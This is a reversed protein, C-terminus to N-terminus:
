IVQCRYLRKMVKGVRINFALGGGSLFGTPRWQPDGLKRRMKALLRSEVIEGMPGMSFNEFQKKHHARRLRRIEDNLSLPPLQAEGRLLNREEIEAIARKEDFMPLEM